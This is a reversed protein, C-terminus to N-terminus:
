KVPWVEVRGVETAQGGDVRLRVLEASSAEGFGPQLERLLNVFADMPAHNGAELELISYRFMAFAHPTGYRNAVGSEVLRLATGDRSLMELEDVTDTALGTETNAFSPYAAMPWAREIHALGLLAIGVLLAAIIPWGIGAPAAPSRKESYAKKVPVASDGWSFFVPYLLVLSRFGIGLVVWTGLHFLLGTAAALPRFRPFLVAPLFGIEFVVAGLALLRSGAASDVLPLGEWGRQWWQVHIINQMSDSTIWSLGGFQLKGIGAFFYALGLSLVMAAIPYAYDSQRRPRRTPERRRRADVSWEDAAPSLAVILLFWFVHHYHDTKGSLQHIWGIYLLAVTALAPTWPHWMGVLTGAVGVTFAIAAIVAVSRGIPLIDTLFATGLPPNWLDPPITGLTPSWAVTMLDIAALATAIRAVALYRPGARPVIRLSLRRLAQEMPRGSEDRVSTGCGRGVLGWGLSPRDWFSHAAGSPVAWETM